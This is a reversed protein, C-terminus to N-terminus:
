LVLRDEEVGAQAGDPFLLGVLESSGEAFVGGQRGNGFLYVCVGGERKAPSHRVCVCM